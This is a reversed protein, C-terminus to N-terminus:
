RSRTRVPPAFNSPKRAGGHVSGGLERESWRREREEENGEILEMTNAKEERDKQEGCRAREHGSVAM